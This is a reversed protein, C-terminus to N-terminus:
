YPSSFIILVIVLMNRLAAFLIDRKGLIDLIVEDCAHPIVQFVLEVLECLLGSLGEDVNHLHPEFPKQLLEVVLALDQLANRFRWRRLLRAILELVRVERAEVKVGEYGRCILVIKIDRRQCIHRRAM